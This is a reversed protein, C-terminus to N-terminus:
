RQLLLTNSTLYLLPVQNANSDEDQLYLNLAEDGEEMEDGDGLEPNFYFM